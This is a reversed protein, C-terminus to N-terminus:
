KGGLAQSEADAAHMDHDGAEAAEEDEDPHAMHDMFHGIVADDHPAGHETMGGKGDHKQVHFGGTHLEKIHMEKLHKPLEPAADPNHGLADHALAMANKLHSHQDQTLVKEGAKLVYPGTKPVTGGSHMQGLPKTMKDVDIRKEGVGTGYPGQTKTKDVPSTGVPRAVTGAAPAGTPKLAQEAQQQMKVRANLESGISTGNPDKPILSKIPNEAM